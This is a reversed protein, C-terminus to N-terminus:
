NNTGILWQGSYTAFTASLATYSNYLAEFETRPVYNTMDISTDGIMAYTAPATATSTCIWESYQDSGTVTTDKILYIINTKPDVIDATSTGNVVEFANITALANIAAEVDPIGSTALTTASAKGNWDIIFADSRVNTELTGDWGGNGIVFAADASTKNYKGYAFM